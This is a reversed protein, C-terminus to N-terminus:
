IRDVITRQIRVFFITGSILLAAVVLGSKLLAEGSPAEGGLVAWSFAEIPAVMPNWEYLNRWREPVLAGTVYAVPSAFMGLQLLLPLAHRLDRWLGDIASLWLSFGLGLIFLYAVVFPAAILRAGPWLGYAVVLLSLILCSVLFDCLAALLASIPLALRPFYVKTILNSNATLSSGGDVLARNFFQWVVMGAFVTPVYPISGAANVPVIRFFIMFIVTFGVPALIAWLFGLATQKYRARLNRLALLLVLHRYRWLESLDAVGGSTPTLERVSQAQLAARRTQISSRDLMSPSTM